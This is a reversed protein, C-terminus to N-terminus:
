YWKYGTLNAAVYLVGIFLVFGGIIIWIVDM